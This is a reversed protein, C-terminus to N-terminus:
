EPRGPPDSFGGGSSSASLVVFGAAAAAVGGGAFMWFKKGLGQSKSDIRYLVQGELGDPFQQLVEWRITKDLGPRVKAGVDGSAFLIPHFSVGDDISYFATIEHPRKDDGDPRVLDYNILIARGDQRATIGSVYQAHASQSVVLTLFVILMSRYFTNM